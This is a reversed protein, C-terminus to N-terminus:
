KEQGQEIFTSLSIQTIRLGTKIRYFQTKFFLSSISALFIICDTKFIVSGHRTLLNIGIIRLIACYIYKKNLIKIRNIVRTNELDSANPM